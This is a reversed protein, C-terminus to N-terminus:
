TQDWTSGILCRDVEHYHDGIRSDCLEASYIEVMVRGRRSVEDVSVGRTVPAGVALPESQAAWEGCCCFTVNKANVYSTGWIANGLNSDVYIVGFENKICSCM